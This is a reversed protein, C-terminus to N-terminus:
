GSQKRPRHVVEAAAGAVGSVDFTRSKIGMIKSALESPEEHTGFLEEAHKREAEKVKHYDLFRVNPVRWIIWSRYNERRTVPNKLLVLHTLRTLNRM